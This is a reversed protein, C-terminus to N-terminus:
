LDKKIVGSLDFDPIYCEDASGSEQIFCQEIGLGSAYEILKEYESEDVRKSIEEPVGENPTYQSMLSLYIDNGYARYLYKAIREAQKLQGPLLLHRVIVGSKMIGDEDFVPKGTQRVMQELSKAAYYPYDACNSYKRASNEDIYKFDTLYIDVTDKLENIIEPLEYGGTNYVVPVTLGNQKAKRVTKVIHPAYQTPSVLNINHAGAAELELFIESLREVSIEAGYGGASIKKNQCYVCKLPCNSFFVAGSGREGSVPPEEWFHLACRAAGINNDAGCFGKKGSARDAGCKRPCLTCNKLINFDLM